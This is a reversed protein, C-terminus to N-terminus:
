TIKTDHGNWTLNQRALIKSLVAVSFQFYFLIKLYNNFNSLFLSVDSCIGSEPYNAPWFVNQNKYELSTKNYPKYCSTCQCSGQHRKESLEKNLM